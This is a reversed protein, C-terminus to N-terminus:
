IVFQYIFVKSSNANIPIFIHALVRPFTHDVREREFDRDKLVFDRSDPM